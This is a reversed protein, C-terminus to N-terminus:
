FLKDIGYGMAAAAGMQLWRWKELSAVRDTLDKTQRVLGVHGMSVDGTIATELREFGKTMERLPEIVEKRVLELASEVNDLREAHAKCPTDPPQDSMFQHKHPHKLPPM